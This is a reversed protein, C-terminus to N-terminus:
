VGYQKKQKFYIKLGESIRQREDLPKVRGKNAASIQQKQKDSCPKMIQRSRAEKIKKKTEESHSKRVINKLIDRLREKHEESLKIGKRGKSVSISLNKKHEESFKVGKKSESMKNRTYDTHKKGLNADSIKKKQSESRKMGKLADSIRKKTVDTFIRGKRAERLKAKTEESAKIGFTSGAAPCINLLVLGCDRYQDMYIQEYNTLVEKTVDKPLEHVISFLHNNYGYKLLSKNINNKPSSKSISKYAQWRHIIDFSQGIYVKGTPSLIKYIGTM